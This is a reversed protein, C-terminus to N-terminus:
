DDGSGGDFLSVMDAKETGAAVEPVAPYVEITRLQEPPPGKNARFHAGPEM